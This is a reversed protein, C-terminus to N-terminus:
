YLIAHLSLVSQYGHSILKPTIISALDCLMSSDSSSMLMSISHINRLILTSYCCGISMKAIVAIASWAVVIM